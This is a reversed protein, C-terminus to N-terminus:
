PRAALLVGAHCALCVARVRVGNCLLPLPRRRRAPTGPEGLGACAQCAAQSMGHTRVMLKHTGSEHKYSAVSQLPATYSNLQLRASHIHAPQPPLYTVASSSADSDANM